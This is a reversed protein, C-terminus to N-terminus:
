FDFLAILLLRADRLNAPLPVDRITQVVFPPALKRLIRCADEFVLPVRSPPFNPISQPILATLPGISSPIPFRVFLM